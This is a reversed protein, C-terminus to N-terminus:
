SMGRQFRGTTGVGLVDLASAPFDFGSAQNEVVSQTTQNPLQLISVLERNHVGKEGLARKKAETPFQAHDSQVWVATDKLVGAEELRALFQKLAKDTCAAGRRLPDEGATENFPGCASNQPYGPYHTNLTLFTLLFREKSQHLSIAKDAAENFLEWDLLGWDQMKLKLQNSNEFWERGVVEDYGNSKLFDGKGSFRPSAGGMFVTKFGAQNLIDTYCVVPSHDAFKEVLFANGNSSGPDLQTGCHTGFLAAITWGGAPYWHRFVTSKKALANINPTLAEFGGPAINTYLIDFAELYVVILNRAMPNPKLATFSVQKSSIPEINHTRLFDKEAPSLSETAPKKFFSAHASEVFLRTPIQPMRIFLAVYGAGVLVTAPLLHKVPNTKFLQAMRASVFGYLFPLLALGLGAAFTTTPWSKAALELTARDFHQWVQPSFTVGFHKLLLKHAIGICLHATALLCLLTRLASLTTRFLTAGLNNQKNKQITSQIVVLSLIFTIQGLFFALDKMCCERHTVLRLSGHKNPKRSIPLRFVLNLPQKEPLALSAPILSHNPAPHPSLRSPFWLALWGQPQSARQNQ